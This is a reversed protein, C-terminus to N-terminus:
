LEYDLQEVVDVLQTYDHFSRFRSEMDNKSSSKVAPETNTNAPLDM